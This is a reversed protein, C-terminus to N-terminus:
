SYMNDAKTRAALLFEQAVEGGIREFKVQYGDDIVTLDLIRSVDSSVPMPRGSGPGKIVDMLLQEGKIFCRVHDKIMEQM